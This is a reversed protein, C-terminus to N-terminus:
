YYTVEKKENSKGVRMKFTSKPSKDWDIADIRYLTKNYRTMITTGQLERNITDRDDKFKHKLDEILELMTTNRLVKYSVDIQLFIGGKQQNLALNYGPWIEMNYEQIRVAKTPDYFKKGIQKLQLKYQVTRFVRGVFNM